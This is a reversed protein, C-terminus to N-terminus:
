RRVVNTRAIKDHVAQRKDDWLPRLVDLINYLGVASGVLPVIGLIQVGFQSAWRLLVTTFPMPGPEDRRRVRLGTMLKGPTAQRWMLFGVHYVFGVLLNIVAIIALPRWVERQVDFSSVDTQRGAEVDALVQDLLDTYVEILDRVWPLALLMGITILIVSDILYAGVRHWWGALPVGDPTTAPPKGHATASAVGYQGTSVPPTAPATHETWGSGDWYRLLPPQGASQPAPDPHWGPQTNSM